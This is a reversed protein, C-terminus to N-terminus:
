LIEVFKAKKASEMIKVIDGPQLSIMDPNNDAILLGQERLVTVKAIGKLRVANPKPNSNNFGIRMGENFPEYGLKNYYATSGYPTSFVAGDGVIKEFNRDATKIAFRLAMYPKKNRVQIENLATLTSGKFNAETKEYSTIDYDKKEIKDLIKDLSNLDYNMCKSCIISKKIPKKPVSPFDREAKLITGDGGYTIVFDPRKHTVIFGREDLRDFIKAAGSGVVWFKM